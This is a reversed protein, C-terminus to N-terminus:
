DFEHSFEEELGGAFKSVLMFNAKDTTLYYGQKLAANGTMKVTNLGNVCNKDGYFNVQIDQLDVPSSVPILLQNKNAALADAKNPYYQLSAIYQSLESSNSAGGSSNGSSGNSCSVLVFSASTLCMILNFARLKM